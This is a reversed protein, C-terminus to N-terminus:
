WGGDSQSRKRADTEAWNTLIWFCSHCLIDILDVVTRGQADRNRDAARVANLCAPCILDYWAHNENM